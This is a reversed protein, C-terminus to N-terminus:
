WCFAYSIRMLSQLESTHEESKSDTDQYEDVLVYKFRRRIEERVYESEDLLLNMETLLDSFDKVNEAAKRAQYADSVYRIEPAYESMWRDQTMVGSAFRDDHANIASKIFDAEPPAGFREKYCRRMM